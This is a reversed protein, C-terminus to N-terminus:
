RWRSRLVFGGGVVVFAVCVIALGYWLPFVYVSSHAEGSESALWQEYTANRDDSLIVRKVNGPKVVYDEDSRVDTVVTGAPFDIRFDDDDLSREFEWRQVTATVQRRLVRNDDFGQITWSDPLFEGSPTRQCDLDIQSLLRGKSNTKSIRVVAHQRQPDLWLEQSLSSANGSVNIAAMERGDLVPGRNIERVNSRSIRGLQPHFPQVSLLVPQFDTMDTDLSYAADRVIGTPFSPRTTTGDLLVAGETLTQNVHGDFACVYRVHPRQVNTTVSLLRGGKWGLKVHQLYQGVPTGSGDAPFMIVAQEFEVIGSPMRQSRADLDRKWQSNASNAAAADADAAAFTPGGLLMVINALFVAGKM